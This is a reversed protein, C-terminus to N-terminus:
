LSIERRWLNTQKIGHHQDNAIHTLSEKKKKETEAKVTRWNQNRLPPLGTKKESMIRKLNEINM